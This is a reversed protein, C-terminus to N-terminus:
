GERIDGRPRRRQAGRDSASGVISAESAAEVGGYPAGAALRGLRKGWPPAARVGPLLLVATAVQSVLVAWGVGVIGLRTGVALTGGIVLVCRVAQLVALRATRSQARLVGFYLEVFARPITSLALLQLLPAGREAYGPGYLRLAVPAFLVTAAVVPVLIYLTRRLAALSNAALTDQDLSGEVTLSTAMNVALLDLVGGIMWAVYFYAYIDPAFQAAVLLPVLYVVGLVFLAGSYDGALFRGVRRPSVPEHRGWTALVHRPVLWWFILINIPFVSIVVPVMWSLFVGSAPFVSALAFALFIKAVGFVANEIPIWVASRLATLVGDQLTFVSWAAVAVVFGVGNVPGALWAYSVGWHELTFLFVSALAAATLTSVLYTKLIFLRTSPGARPLFRTMMGTLNVATFGALLMMAAIAASGRGVATAEYQHAVLLWYLVGLAGTAGTNIMLAYANRFLPDTSEHFEPHSTATSTRM